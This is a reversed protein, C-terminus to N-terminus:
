IYYPNSQLIIV